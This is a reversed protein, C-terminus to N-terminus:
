SAKERSICAHHTTTYVSDMSHIKGSVIIIEMATVRRTKVLLNAKESVFMKSVKCYGEDTYHLTFVELILLFLRGNPNMAM